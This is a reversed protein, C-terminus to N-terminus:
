LTSTLDYIADVLEDVRHITTPPGYTTVKWASYVITRGDVQENLWDRPAYEVTGVPEGDVRVTRRHECRTRIQAKRLGCTGCRHM